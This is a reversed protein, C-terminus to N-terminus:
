DIVIEVGATAGTAELLARAARAAINDGGPPLEVGPCAVRVGPAASLTLGIRDYLSLRQMLMAVDHYGDPRRRLVHLCLNIKAPALLSRTM